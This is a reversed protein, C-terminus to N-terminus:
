EERGSPSEVAPVIRGEIRWDDLARGSPLLPTSGEPLALLLAHRRYAFGAYLDRWLQDRAESMLRALPLDFNYVLLCDRSWGSANALTHLCEFIRVDDLGAMRADPPLTKLYEAAFDVPAAQLRAALDAEARLHFPALLLIGTRSRLGGERLLSVLGHAQESWM